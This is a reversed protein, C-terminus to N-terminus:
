RREPSGEACREKCCRTTLTSYVPEVPLSLVQM